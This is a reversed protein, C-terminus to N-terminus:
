NKYERTKYYTYSFGYYEKTDFNLFTLYHTQSNIFSMEQGDLVVNFKRDDFGQKPNELFYIKLPQYPKALIWSSGLKKSSYRRCLDNFSNEQCVNNRSIALGIRGGRYTKELQYIGKKEITPFESFANEIIEDTLKTSFYSRTEFFKESNSFPSKTDKLDYDYYEDKGDGQFPWFPIKPINQRTTKLVKVRSDESEFAEKRDYMEIVQPNKYHDLLLIKFAIKLYEPDESVEVENQAKKQWQGRPGYSPSFSIVIAQNDHIKEGFIGYESRKGQYSGQNTDFGYTIWTQITRTIKYPKGDVEVFIEYRTLDSRTDPRFM